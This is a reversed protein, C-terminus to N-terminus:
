RDIYVYMIYIYIYGGADREGKRRILHDLLVEVPELIYIYIYIYVYIYIFLYMCIDM